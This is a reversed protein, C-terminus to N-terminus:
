RPNKQDDLRVTAKRGRIKTRQLARVVQRAKPASVDVVSFVEHVAISGIDGGKVGAEATIAGVLDGPTVGAKRGISIFIRTVPGSPKERRSQKRQSGGGREGSDGGRSGSERKGSPEDLRAELDRDDDALDTGQTSEHAIAFLAAAVDRPDRDM